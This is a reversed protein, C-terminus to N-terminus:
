ARCRTQPRPPTLTCRPALTGAEPAERDRCRTRCDTGGRGYRGGVLVFAREGGAREEGWGVFGWVSESVQVRAGSRTLTLHGVKSLELALVYRRTWEVLDLTPAPPSACHAQPQCDTM